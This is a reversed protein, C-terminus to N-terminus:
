TILHLYLYTSAQEQTASINKGEAVTSLGQTLQTGDSTLEFV